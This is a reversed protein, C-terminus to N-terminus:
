RHIRRIQWGVPEDAIPRGDFRRDSPHGRGRWFVWAAPEVQRRRAGRVHNASSAVAVGRKTHDVVRELERSHIRNSSTLCDAKFEVPASSRCHAVM